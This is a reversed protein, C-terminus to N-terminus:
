EGKLSLIYAVLDDIDPRSIQLKPMPPHPDSLWTALGGPTTDPDDAIAMFPPAEDSAAAQGSEVLHCESCWQRALNRGSVPDGAMAASTAVVMALVTAGPLSAIRLRM